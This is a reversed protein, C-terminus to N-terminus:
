TTSVSIAGLRWREAGAGLPILAALGASLMGLWAALDASSGNLKLGRFFWPEAAIWNWQKGAVVASYGARGPFGQFGFGCIFYIGAATAIACMSALMMHGANRSRGLGANILALGAAALPVLLISFICLAATLAPLSGSTVWSGGPSPGPPFSHGPDIGAIRSRVGGACLRRSALLRRATRARVPGTGM